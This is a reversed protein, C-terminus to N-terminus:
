IDKYDEDNAADEDAGIEEYEAAAQERADLQAPDEISHPLEISIPVVPNVQPLIGTTRVLTEQERDRFFQARDELPIDKAPCRAITHGPQACLGCRRLRKGTNIGSHKASRSQIRNGIAAKSVISPAPGLLM